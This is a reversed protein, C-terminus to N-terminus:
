LSPGHSWEATPWGVQGWIPLHLSASAMLRTLRTQSGQFHRTKNSKAKQGTPTSTLKPFCAAKLRCKLPHSRSGPTGLCLQLAPPNKGEDLTAIAVSTPGSEKTAAFKPVHECRQHHTETAMAVPLRIKFTESMDLKRTGRLLM